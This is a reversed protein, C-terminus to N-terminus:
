SLVKRSEILFKILVRLFRSTVVFDLSGIRHKIILLFSSWCDRAARSFEAFAGVSIGVNLLISVNISRRAQV